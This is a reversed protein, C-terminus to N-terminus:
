TWRIRPESKKVPSCFTLMLADAADPSRLGRKKMAEKSEILLQGQSNYKFKIASLEGILKKNDPIDGKKLWEKVAWYAESRLNKHLEPNTSARGVNVGYSSDFGQEKLRDVVGGGVGIEDVAIEPNDFRRSFSILRGTTAMLDSKTHKEIALIKQSNRAIFYTSDEGFRAIDAGIIVRDAETSENDRDTAGEIITLPILADSASDPFDGLVKSQFLPHEEGWDLLAEYAWMPTVLKPNVIKAKLINEETLDQASEFGEFNPTDFVSIKIKSTTERKFAEYFYGDSWIPNGLLLARSGVSSLSGKSAEFIDRSIGSSEDYILLINEAHYGQFNDPKDTSIGIAYWDPAIEYRTKLIEGGLLQSKAKAARVERWLLNEVQRFTPATSIVVSNEFSNLFWLLARAAIFTKGSGHCSRVVTERNTVISNLIDEQKSWVKEHLIDEVFLVPNSRLIKLAEKIQEKTLAM